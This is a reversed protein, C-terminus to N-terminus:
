AHWGLLVLVKLVGYVAAYSTFLILMVAAVERVNRSTLLKDTPKSVIKTRHM